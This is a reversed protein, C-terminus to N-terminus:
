FKLPLPNQVHAAEIIAISWKADDASIMMEKGETLYFYLAEYITATGLEFPEGAFKGTEEHTILKESCYCPRRNENEIFTESVKREVNEGPVVYTYKYDFHGCAYTGLTGQAKLVYGDDYADTSNIEIDILPKGPATVLIKAYDDSDGSNLPTCALKSYVVKIDDSFDLFGAAMGIPHPGTNYANGAVRKQLTQWDWRRCLGNYRMSIQQVEGIIGSNLIEKTQYYIPSYFTQMFPIIKVGNDKAIKILTECELLTAGLPKENMVNFGHLLLDKAISFHQDSYSANVVIDVDKKDYLQTYNELVEADPYQQQAVGRRYENEEVIYKVNFYINRESKYYYGHINRGSRGQGIIALNLKKM